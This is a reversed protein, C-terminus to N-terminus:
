RLSLSSLPPSPFPFPQQTFVLLSQSQQKVSASVLTSRLSGPHGLPNGAGPNSVPLRPHAPHVSVRLTQHTHSDPSETHVKLARLARLDRRLYTLLHTPETPVWQLAPGKWHRGDGLVLIRPSGVGGVGGVRYGTGYAETDRAAGAGTLKPSEEGRPPLVPRTIFKKSVCPLPTLCPPPPQSALVLLQTSGRNILFTSLARASAVHM